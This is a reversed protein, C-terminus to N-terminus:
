KPSITKRFSKSARIVWIDREFQNFFNYMSNEMRTHVVRTHINEFWGSELIAVLYYTIKKFFKNFVCLVVSIIIIQNMFHQRVLSCSIFREGQTEPRASAGSPVFFHEGLQRRFHLSSKAVLTEVCISTIRTARQQWICEDSHLEM